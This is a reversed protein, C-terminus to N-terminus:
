RPIRGSAIAEGLRSFAGGNSANDDFRKSNVCLLFHLYWDTIANFEESFLKLTKVSPFLVSPPPLAMTNSYLYYFKLKPANFM